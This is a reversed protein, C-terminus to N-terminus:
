GKMCKELYGDAQEESMGGDTILAQRICAIYEPAPANREHEIASTLTIISEGNEAIGLCLMKGYWADSAGEQQMVDHLQSRKIRYLRVVASQGKTPLYFAVGADWSPSHNGFYVVGEAETFYTDTWLSPDSCGPYYNGNEQCCGGALYCKFREANMNSGYAAYWVYSDPNAHWRDRIIEGEPMGNYVYVNAALSGFGTSISVRRRTYLSGEGEYDDLADLTADDVFWIEGQVAEGDAQRIGPYLDLDYMAYGKLIAHGGWLADDMLPAAPMDRMLTGYTFVANAKGQCACRAQLLEMNKMSRNFGFGTIVEGDPHEEWAITQMVKQ